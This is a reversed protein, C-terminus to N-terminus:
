ASHSLCGVAVGAAPASLRSRYDSAGAIASYYAARRRAVRRCVQDPPPLAEPNLQSNMGDKLLMLAEARMQSIRSESVGLEDALAQMPLEEFFYGIVVRRLRAPLAAVSDMLYARQEREILVSDPSRLDSPMGLQTDGGAVLGDFNLVVARYVDGNITSVSREDIAAAEAIESTTPARGLRVILTDAAADVIRARARVSRSAWDRRRLDDLMAGRIRTSAYRAFAIGREPDFARAAQALGEMGASILDARVVHRPLRAAMENVAYGVLPLHTRVLEEERKRQETTIGKATKPM